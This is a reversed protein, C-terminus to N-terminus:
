PAARTTWRGGRTGQLEIFFRFDFGSQPRAGDMHDLQKAGDRRHVNRSIWTGSAASATPLLPIWHSRLFRVAGCSARSRCWGPARCCPSSGAGSRPCCVAPGGCSQRSPPQQGMSPLCRCLHPTGLLTLATACFLAATGSLESKAVGGRHQDAMTNPHAWFRLCVFCHLLWM